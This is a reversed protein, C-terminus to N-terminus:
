RFLLMNKFVASLIQLWKRNRLLRFVSTNASPLMEQPSSPPLFSSECSVGTKSRPWVAALTNPGRIPDSTGFLYQSSCKFPHIPKVKCDFAESPMKCIVAFLSVTSFHSRKEAPGWWLPSLMIKSRAEPSISCEEQLYPCLLCLEPIQPNKDTRCWFALGRGQGILLRVTVAVESAAIEVYCEFTFPILM